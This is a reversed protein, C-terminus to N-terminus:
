SNERMARRGRQRAADASKVSTLDVPQYTQQLERSQNVTNAMKAALANMDVGGASAEVAGSRRLDLLQRNDGPLVGARVARFDDGLTDKSYANGSRNRFLPANALPAAGLAEVYRAVLRETRRSLTGLAPQGTKTRKVAFILRGQQYTMNAPTLKRV